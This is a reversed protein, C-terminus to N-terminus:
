YDQISDNSNIVAQHNADQRVWATDLQYYHKEDIPTVLVFIAVREEPTNNPEVLLTKVRGKWDIARTSASDEQWCIWLHHYYSILLSDRAINSTFHMDVKGGEMGVRYEKTDFLAYEHRQWVTLTRQKGGSEIVVQASRRQRTKNPQITHLILTDRGQEGEEPIVELWDATTWARWKDSAHFQVMKLNEGVSLMDDVQDTLLFVGGVEDACGVFITAIMIGLAIFSLWISKVISKLMKTM